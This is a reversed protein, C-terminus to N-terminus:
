YKGIMYKIVHGLIERWAEEIADNWQPDCESATVIINDLWLEYLEPSINLHDRDHTLAREHLEVLSEPVGETVGWSLELSRQLSHKQTEFDTFQFRTAIEESSAMFREYFQGLFDDANQCRALSDIFSLRHDYANEISPEENM